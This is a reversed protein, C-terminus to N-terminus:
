AGFGRRLRARLHLWRALLLCGVAAAVMTLARGWDVRHGGRAGGVAADATAILASLAADSRVDDGRAVAAAEERQFVAVWQEARARVERVRERSPPRPTKAVYRRAEDWHKLIGAQGERLLDAAPHGREVARELAWWALNLHRKVLFLEALSRYLEPGELGGFRLMGAVARYAKDWELERAGRWDESWRNSDDPAYHLGDAAILPNLKYGAYRLFSFRQWLEPDERAAAVYAVLEIQFGERGFHADPNLAVATRLERLAAEFEGAHAHFTGLNAHYRYQHEATPTTLLLAAKKEMVAVAAVRDGLREHAVALDDCDSLSLSAEDAFRTVRDEYYADSHRHWKGVVLDFAEPIGRLEDDLTDSDWLCPTLAGGTLALAALIKM